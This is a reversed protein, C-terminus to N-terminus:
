RCADIADAILAQIRARLESSGAQAELDKPQLADAVRSGVCLGVRRSRGENVERAAIQARLVPLSLAQSSRGTTGLNIKSGPDCSRFTVERRQANASVSAQDPQALQQRWAGLASRLEEADGASALRVTAAVCVRRHGDRKVVGSRVADGRWGDVARMATAADIRESLMLFLVSAGLVDDRRGTSGAIRPPDISKFSARDFYTIPDFLEASTRPLRRYVADIRDLRLGGRGADALNVFSPGLAYPLGFITTLIDPVEALQDDADGAQRKREEDYAAGEREGLSEVYAREVATADGELVARAAASGEDPAALMSEVDYIQDQLAHTLEHVLTVRLGVTMTSGRVNVVDETQDYFALTGSDALEGQAKLVDPSGSILGLARLEAVQRDAERRQAATPEGSLGAGIADRYEKPSLFYVRVPHRFRHGRANEVFRALDAVRADWRAPAVIGAHGLISGIGAAAAVVAVTAAVATLIRRRPVHRRVTFAYAPEGWVPPGLPSSPPPLPMAIRSPGIARSEHRDPSIASVRPTRVSQLAAPITRLGTMRAGM